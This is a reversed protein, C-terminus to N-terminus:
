NMPGYQKLREQQIRKSKIADKQRTPDFRQNNNKYDRHQLTGVEPNCSAILIILFFLFINLRKM